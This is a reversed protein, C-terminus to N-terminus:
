GQGVVWEAYFIGVGLAVCLGTAIMSTRLSLLLASRSSPSTILEPFEAWDVRTLMALLPLAIFLM